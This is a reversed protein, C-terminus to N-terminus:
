ALFWVSLCSCPSRKKLMRTGGDCPFSIRVASPRYFFDLHLTGPIDENPIAPLPGGAISRRRWDTMERIQARQERAMTSRPWRDFAKALVPRCSTPFEPASFFLAFQPLPFSPSHLPLLPACPNPFVPDYAPLAAQLHESSASVTSKQLYLSLRQSKEMQNLM